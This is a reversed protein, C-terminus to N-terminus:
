RDDEKGQVEVFNSYKFYMNMKELLYDKAEKTFYYTLSGNSKIKQKIINSKLLNCSVIDDETETVIVSNFIRSILKNIDYSEKNVIFFTSKGWNWSSKLFILLFAM